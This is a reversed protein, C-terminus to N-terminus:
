IPLLLLIVAIILLQFKAFYLGFLQCVYLINQKMTLKSEGHERDRFIIPVEQIKKCNCRVILELGIKYGMPNLGKARAFTDRHLAFFGSMPDSASTLPKALSTAGWSIVRRILPWDDSVEGGGVHRSGIVFDANGSIIPAAIDAIHAPDHQLDADMVLLIEHKAQKFGHVVASSLGKETKRVEMRVPFGENHLEEVTEVSGDGSNDDVYLIEGLEVGKKNDKLAEVIREVLPRINPQEKYAPVVISIKTM